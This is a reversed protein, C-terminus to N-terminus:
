IKKCCIRLDDGQRNVGVQAGVQKAVLVQFRPFAVIQVQEWLDPDADALISGIVKVGRHNVNGDKGQNLENSVETPDLNSFCEEVWPTVIILVKL